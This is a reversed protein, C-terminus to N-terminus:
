LDRWHIDIIDALENFSKGSDNLKMISTEKGKNLFKVAGAGPHLFRKYEKGEDDEEEDSAIGAWEMITYSLTKYKNDFRGFGKDPKFTCYGDLMALAALVGLACYKGNSELHGICQKFEGSRLAKVWLEKIDKKM